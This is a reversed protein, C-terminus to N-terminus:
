GNKYPERNHGVSTVSLCVCVCVSWAVDISSAADQASCLSAASSAVSSTATQHTEFASLGIRQTLPQSRVVPNPPKRRGGHGGGQGQGEGQGRRPHLRDLLVSRHDDNDPGVARVAAVVVCGIVLLRM